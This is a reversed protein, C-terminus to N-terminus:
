ALAGGSGDPVNFRIAVVGPVAKLLQALGASLGEDPLQVALSGQVKVGDGEFQMGVIHYQSSQTIVNTVDGVFGVRDFGTIQYVTPLNKVDKKMNTTLLNNLMNYGM